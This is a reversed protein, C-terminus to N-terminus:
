SDCEDFEDISVLEKDTVLVVVVEELLGSAGGSAKESSERGADFGAGLVAGM